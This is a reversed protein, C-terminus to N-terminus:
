GYVLYETIFKTNASSGIAPAGFLSSNRLDKTRDERNHRYFSVFNPREVNENQFQNKMHPFVTERYQLFEWYTLPSAQDNLGGEAYLKYIERYETKEEDPDFKHLKDVEDNAFGIGQNAYSSIISFREPNELDVNGNEDKFHKGVNWVLPYAKQAIAPETFTYLASYRDRVRLEGNSLVNRMPGPQVVFTMTSNAKHYRTIPNESARLQKWSSYGYPGNRHLNIGVLEDESNTLSFEPNVQSEIINNEDFSGTSLILTNMGAFDVFTPM